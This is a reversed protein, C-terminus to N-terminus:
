KLTKLYALLDSWQQDTLQWRPMLRDLQAGTPDTGQTVATHIAADTYTPGHSGDPALMGKPSTLNAYTINPASYMLTTRGHGDPGHCTACGARMMMGGSYPIPTGNPDTGTRYIWQRAAVTTAASPSSSGRNSLAVIVIVAAVAVALAVGAVTLNGRRGM